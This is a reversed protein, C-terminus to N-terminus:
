ASARVGMRLTLYLGHADGLTGLDGLADLSALVGALEYIAVQLHLSGMSDIALDEVLRTGPELGDSRLGLVEAIAVAFDDWSLVSVQSQEPM